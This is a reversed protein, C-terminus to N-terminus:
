IDRKESGTESKVLEMIEDESLISDSRKAVGLVAEVVQPTAVVGRTRLYHVVNSKGSLHGILVEQRRGIWSAPM